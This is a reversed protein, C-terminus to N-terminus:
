FLEVPVGSSFAGYETESPSKGVVYYANELPLGEGQFQTQQNPGLKLPQKDWIGRVDVINSITFSAPVKLSVQATAGREVTGTNNANPVNYQPVVWVSYQNNTVSYTVQYNVRFSSLQAISSQGTLLVLLCGWLVFHLSRKM